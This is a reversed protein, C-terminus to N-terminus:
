LFPLRGNASELIQRTYRVPQLSTENGVESLCEIQLLKIANVAELQTCLLKDSGMEIRRVAIYKGCKDLCVSRM